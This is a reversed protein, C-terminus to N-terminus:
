GGPLEARVDAVYNSVYPCYTALAAVGLSESEPAQDTLAAIGADFAGLTIADGVTWGIACSSAAFANATEDDQADLWASQPVASRFTSVAEPWWWYEPDRFGPGVVQEGEPAFTAGSDFGTARTVMIDLAEDTVEPDSSGVLLVVNSTVAGQVDLFTSSDNTVLDSRYGLQTSTAARDRPKYLEYYFISESGFEDNAFQGSCTPLSEKLYDLANNAAEDTEYVYVGSYLLHPGNAAVDAGAIPPHTSTISGVGLCLETSQGSEVFTYEDLEM